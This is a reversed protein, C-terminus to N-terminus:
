AHQVAWTQGGFGIYHIGLLCVSFRTISQPFPTHCWKACKGQTHCLVQIAQGACASAQGCKSWELWPKAVASLACDGVNRAPLANAGDCVSGTPLRACRQARHRAGVFRFFAIPDSFNIVWGCVFRKLLQAAVAPWALSSCMTTWQENDASTTALQLDLKLHFTDTTM